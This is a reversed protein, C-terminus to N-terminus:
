LCSGVETLEEWLDDTVAVGYAFKNLYRQFLLIFVSIIKGVM